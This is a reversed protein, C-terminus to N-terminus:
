GEARAPNILGPRAGARWGPPPADLGHVPLGEEERELASLWPWFATYSIHGGHAIGVTTIYAARREWRAEAHVGNKRMARERASVRRRLEM